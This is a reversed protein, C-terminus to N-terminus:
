NKLIQFREFQLAGTGFTITAKFPFQLGSSEVILDSEGVVIRVAGLRYLNERISRNLHSTATVEEITLSNDGLQSVDELGKQSHVGLDWNVRESNDHYVGVEREVVVDVKHLHSLMKLVVWVDEFDGKFRISVGGHLDLEL